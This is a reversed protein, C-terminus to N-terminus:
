AASEPTIDPVRMADIKRIMDVTLGLSDFYAQDVVDGGLFLATHDAMPDFIVATHGDILVAVEENLGGDRFFRIANGDRKQLIKTM